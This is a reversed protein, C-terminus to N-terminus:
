TVRSPVVAANANARPGCEFDSDILTEGPCVTGGVVDDDVEVVRGGAVVDVVDVVMTPVVSGSIWGTVGVVGCRSGRSVVGVVAATGFVVVVTAAPVGSGDGFAKVAVM